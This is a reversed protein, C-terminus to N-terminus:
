AGFTFNEFLDAQHALTIASGPQGFNCGDMNHRKPVDKVIVEILVVSRLEERLQGIHQQRKAPSFTESIRDAIAQQVQQEPVDVKYVGVIEVHPVLKKAMM